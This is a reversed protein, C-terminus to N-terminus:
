SRPRNWKPNNIALAADVSQRIHDVLAQDDFGRKGARIEASLAANLESPAGARGLLSALRDAEAQGLAPGQRLEREVTALVNIAVRMNFKKDDALGPLVERELWERVVALLDPAVPRSQPM